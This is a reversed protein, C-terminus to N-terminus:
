VTEGTRATPFLLREYAPAAKEISFKTEGREKAAGGLRVRDPRDALVAQLVRVLGNSNRAPFYAAAAGCVEHMVPLDSVICPLGEMMAEAVATGLVSTMRIVAKPVM